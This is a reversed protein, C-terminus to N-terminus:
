EVAVSECEQDSETDDEEDDMSFSLTGLGDKRRKAKKTRERLLALCACLLHYSPSLISM